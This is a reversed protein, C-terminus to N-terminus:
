LLGAVLHAFEDGPVDAEERAVDGVVGAAVALVVDGLVAGLPARHRLARGAAADHNGEHRQELDLERQQVQRRQGLADGKPRL